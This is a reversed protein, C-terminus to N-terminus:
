SPLQMDSPKPLKEAALLVDFEDISAFFSAFAMEEKIFRGSRRFWQPGGKM